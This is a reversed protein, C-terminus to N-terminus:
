SPVSRIVLTYFTTNEERRSRDLTHKFKVPLRLFFAVREMLLALAEDETHAWVSCERMSPVSAEIGDILRETTVQFQM